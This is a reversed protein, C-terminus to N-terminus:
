TDTAVWMVRGAEVIRKVPELLGQFFQGREGGEVDSLTELQADAGRRVRGGM